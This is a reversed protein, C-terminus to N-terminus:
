VDHRIWGTWSLRAAKAPKVEHELESNFVIASGLNPQISIPAKGPDDKPYLVLEGGQNTPWNENLYIVFSFFRRNNTKTKDSHRGYYHGAPYYAFHSEFNNLPIRFYDRLVLVTNAIKEKVVQVAQEEIPSITLETEILQDLDDTWITYDNRIMRAEPSKQTISAPKLLGKQFLQTLMVALSRLQETTEDDFKTVVYDQQELYSLATETQEADGFLSSTNSTSTSDTTAGDTSGTASNNLSSKNATNTTDM